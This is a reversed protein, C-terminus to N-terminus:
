PNTTGSSESSALTELVFVTLTATMANSDTTLRLNYTGPVVDLPVYIQLLGDQIQQVDPKPSRTDLDGEPLVIWDWTIGRETATPPQITYQVDKTAGQRIEESTSNFQVRTVGVQRTVTVTVSRSTLGGCSATITTSGTSVGTVVGREDVTAVNANGTNWTIYGAFTANPPTVTATLQQTGNVPISFNGGNITVGTVNVVTSRSATVANRNTHAWDTARVTLNSGDYEVVVLVEVPTSFRNSNSLDRGFTLSSGRTHDMELYVTSTAIGSSGGTTPYLTPNTTNSMRTVRPDAISIRSSHDDSAAALDIPLCVTPDYDPDNDPYMYYLAKDFNLSITGSITGDSEVTFENIVVGEGTPKLAPPDTDPINVPALGTYGQGNADTNTAMALLTYNTGKVLASENIPVRDSTTTSSLNLSGKLVIVNGGVQFSRFSSAAGTKATETAFLDFVSGLATGNSTSVPSAMAQAISLNSYEDRWYSHYPGSTIAQADVLATNSSSFKTSFGNSFYNDGLRHLSNTNALVWDVRTRPQNIMPYHLSVIATTGTGDASIIPSSTAPTRFTYVYPDSADGNGQLVIYVFYRTDAELDAERIEVTSGALVDDLHGMKAGETPITASTADTVWTKGPRDSTRGLYWVANAANADEAEVIYVEGTADLEVVDPDIDEPLQPHTTRTSHTKEVTSDVAPLIVYYLTADADTMTSIRVSSDTVQSLRPFNREFLPISLDAFVKRMLIRSDTFPHPTGIDQIEGSDIYGNFSALSLNRSNQGSFLNGLATTSGSIVSVGFHIEGRWGEPDASYSDGEPIDGLQTM